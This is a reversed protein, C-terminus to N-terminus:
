GLIVLALRSRVRRLVGGVDCRVGVRLVKEEALADVFPHNELEDFFCELAKIAPRVTNARIAILRNLLLPELGHRPSSVADGALVELFTPMSDM